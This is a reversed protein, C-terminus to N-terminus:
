SPDGTRQDATPAKAFAAIFVIKAFRMIFGDALDAMLAKRAHM